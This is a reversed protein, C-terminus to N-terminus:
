TTQRELLISRLLWTTSRILGSTSQGIFWCPPTKSGDFGANVGAVEDAYSAACYSSFFTDADTSITARDSLDGIYTM